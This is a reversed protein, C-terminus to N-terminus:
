PQARGRNDPPDVLRARAAFRPQRNLLGGKQALKRAFSPREELGKDARFIMPQRRIVILLIATGRNRM